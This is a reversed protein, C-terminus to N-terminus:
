RIKMLKNIELVIKTATSGFSSKLAKVLVNAVVKPAMGYIGLEVEEVADEFRGETLKGEVKVKRNKLEKAITRFLAAASGSVREGDMQKYLRVLQDDSYQKLSKSETLKGEFASKVLKGAAADKCAKNFQKLKKTADGKYGDQMLEIAMNLHSAIDEAQEDDIDEFKDSLKLLANEGVNSKITAGLQLLPKLGRALKENLVDKLKIMNDERNHHCDM